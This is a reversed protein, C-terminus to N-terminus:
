MTGAIRPASDRGHSVPRPPRSIPCPRSRNASPRRGARRCSWNCDPAEARRPKSRGGTCPRFWRRPRRRVRGSRATRPTSLRRPKCSSGSGALHLPQVDGGLLGEGRRDDGRSEGVVLVDIRVVVAVVDRPDDGIHPVDPPQTRRGVVQAADRGSQQVAIPLQLQVLPVDAGRVQDDRSAPPTTQSKLRSRPTECAAPLSASTLSISSIRATLEGCVM